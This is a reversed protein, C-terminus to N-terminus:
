ACYTTAPISHNGTKRGATEPGLRFFWHAFFSTAEPLTDTEAKPKADLHQDRGHDSRQNPVAQILKESSLWPQQDKKQQKATRCSTQRDVSRGHQNLHIVFFIVVIIIVAIIVIM